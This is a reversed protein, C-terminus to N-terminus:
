QHHRHYHSCYCYCCLDDDDDDYQLTFILLALLPLALSSFLMPDLSFALAMSNSCTSTLSLSYLSYLAFSLRTLFLCILCKCVYICVDRRSLFTDSLFPPSGLTSLRHYSLTWRQALSTESRIKNIGCFRLSFLFFRVDETGCLITHYIESPLDGFGNREDDYFFSGGICAHM